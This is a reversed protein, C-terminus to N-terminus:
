DIREVLILEDVYCVAAGFVSAGFYDLVLDGAQAVVVVDHSSLDHGLFLGSWLEHVLREVSQFLGCELM